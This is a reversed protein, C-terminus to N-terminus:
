NKQVKVIKSGVKLTFLGAPIEKTNLKYAGVCKEKKLLRGTIDYLEILTIQNSNNLVINIHDNFPNPYVKIEDGKDFWVQRVPSYEIEGSRHIIKLKYYNVGLSPTNHLWSYAVHSDETNNAKFTALESFSNYNTGWVLSYHSIDNEASVNWNVMVANKEAKANFDVTTLPLTTNVEFPIYVTNNFWHQEIPSQEDNVIIQAYYLGNMGIVDKEFSIIATDGPNLPKLKALQYVTEVSDRNGIIVKVGTSDLWTTAINKFALKIKLSDKGPVLVPKGIFYYDLASLAGDAVPLYFLRWYDLQFPIGKQANKTVLKMRLWPYQKADITSIDNDWESPIYSRLITEKGNKDIGILQLESESKYDEFPEYGKWHLEKWSSAPGFIPSNIQGLTDTTEIFSNLNIKDYLGESLVPMPKFSSSDDKRFLFYFTRDRNMSDLDYFGQNYLSHYLSKGSGFILTDNKWYKAFSSDFVPKGNVTATANLFIRSAVIMNKPVSDLFDMIKKRESSIDYRFEFNFERGTSCNAASNFRQDLNTWPKFTISDFINFVISKGVCISRISRDGNISISYNSEQIDGSYNAISHVTYLNQINNGFKFQRNLSDLAVQKFTSKQHQFYHSQGFGSFLGQLYQFSSNRWNVPQGNIVPALRWYYVVNNKWSLSPEFKVAGGITATDKTYLLPSNFFETTDIQIRYTRADQIANVTSGSLYINPQNVIAYKYPYVPLIEEDSVEFPKRGVNNLENMEVLKNDPDVSAIIYNTGKDFNGHVAIRGMLSDSVFLVASDRKAYYTKYVRSPITKRIISNVTGDPFERKLEITVSDRFSRGLNYFVAKVDMSDQSVSPFPTIKILSDNTVLDPKSNPFGVIAPDSYLISQECNIRNFFHNYPNSNASLALTSNVTHKQIDGLGKAYLTTSANRYWQETFLHLFNPIGNDTGAIFAIMGRNPTLLYREPLSIGYYTTRPEIFEFADGTKCGNVIFIPYKGNTNEYKEPNDFNYAVGHGFYNILGVGNNIRTRMELAENSYNKNGVKVYTKVRAGILTDSIIPAYINMFNTLQADLAEDGVDAGVAQVVEKKWEMKDPTINPDNSLTEYQKVKELYASIEAGNIVSLRGIPLLPTSNYSDASALFNDSPPQGYTPVTNLIESYDRGARFSSYTTGRGILFVYRPKINQANNNAQSTIFRIFNKISLPNKSHGFAFQDGLEDIDYVKANYNGGQPSSRYARYDEVYNHGNYDFLRKSSIIIFEAQQATQSYDKFQVPTLQTVDNMLAASTSFLVLNRNINSPQLLVLVSDGKIVGTYRKQNSLDYLIPAVGTRRFNAMRLHNGMNNAALEFEFRVLNNFIFKRQYSITLSSLNGRNNSLDNTIFKLSVADNVIKSTPIGSVTARILEYGKNSKTSILSDGISLLFNKPYMNNGSATYSVTIPTSHEYLRLNNANITLPRQEYFQQYYYGEGEDFVSSRFPVYPNDPLEQALGLWYTAPSVLDQTHNFFSDAPLTTSGVNNEANVIRANNGVNETLYYWATDSFLSKKDYPQDTPKVYLVNEEKGDNILGNFELYGDAALVGTPQTTFLPVEKGNRWLQFNEAPVNGLNAAELTAKTIRCLQTTRVPFKYYTKSHDIWENGFPQSIIHSATLLFIVFFLARLM